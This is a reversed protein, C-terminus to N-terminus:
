LPIHISVLHLFFVKVANKEENDKSFLLISLSVLFYKGLKEWNQKQEIQTSLWQKYAIANGDLRLFNM